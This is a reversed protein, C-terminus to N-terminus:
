QLVLPCETIGPSRAGPLDYRGQLVGNRPTRVGRKVPASLQQLCAYLSTSQCCCCSPCPQSGAASASSIGAPSRSGVSLPFLHVVGLCRPGPFLPVPIRGGPVLCGWVQLPNRTASGLAAAPFLINFLLSHTVSTSRSLIGVELGKFLFLLFCVLKLVVSASGCAHM